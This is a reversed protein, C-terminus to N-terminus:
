ENGKALEEEGEKRKENPWWPWPMMARRWRRNAGAGALVISKERGAGRERRVRERPLWAVGVEFSTWPTSM